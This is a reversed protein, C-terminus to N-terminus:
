RKSGAIKRYDCTSILSVSEGDIIIKHDPMHDSLWRVVPECLTQISQKKENKDHTASRISSRAIEEKYEQLRAILDSLMM